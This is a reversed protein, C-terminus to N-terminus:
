LSAKVEHRCEPCVLKRATPFSKHWDNPGSPESYIHGEDSLEHGCIPCAIGTCKCDAVRVQRKSEARHAEYEQVTELKKETM